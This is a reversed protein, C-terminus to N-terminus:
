TGPITTQRSRTAMLFKDQQIVLGNIGDILNSVALNTVVLTGVQLTEIRTAGASMGASAGGGAPTGGAGHGGTLQRTAAQAQSRGHTAGGFVGLQAATILGFEAASAFHLAAQQFQLRALAGIGEAIEEIARVAAVRKTAEISANAKLGEAEQYQLASLREADIQEFISETVSALLNATVQGFGMVAGTMDNFAGQLATSAELSTRGLELFQSGVVDLERGMGARLQSVANLANRPDASIEFILGIVNEAM